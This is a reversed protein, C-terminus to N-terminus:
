QFSVSRQFSVSQVLKHLHVVSTGAPTKTEAVRIVVICRAGVIVVLLL